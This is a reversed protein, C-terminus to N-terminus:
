TIYNVTQPTYNYLRLLHIHYFYILRKLFTLYFNWVDDGEPILDGNMLSFFHVFTMIERGSMKLNFKNIHM